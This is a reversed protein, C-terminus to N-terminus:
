HLLGLSISDASAANHWAADCSWVAKLSVCLGQLAGAARCHATLWTCGRQTSHKGGLSRAWALCCLVKDRDLTLSQYPISSNICCHM